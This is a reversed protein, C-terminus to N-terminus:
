IKCFQDAPPLRREQNDRIRKIYPNGQTRLFAAIQAESQGDRRRGEVAANILTEAGDVASEVQNARSLEAFHCLKAYNDSILLFSWASAVALVTFAILTRERRLRQGLAAWFPDPDPLGGILNRM